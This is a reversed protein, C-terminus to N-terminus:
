SARLHQRNDIKGHVELSWISYNAIRIPEALARSYLHVDEAHTPHCGLALVCALLIVRRIGIELALPVLKKVEEAHLHGTALVCRHRAMMELTAILEPTPKLDDDFM